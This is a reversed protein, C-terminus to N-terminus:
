GGLSACEKCSRGSSIRTFEEIWIMEGSKCFVYPTYGRKWKGFEQEARGM